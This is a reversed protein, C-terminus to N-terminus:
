AFGRKFRSHFATGLLMMHTEGGQPRGALRWLILLTVSYLGLGMPGLAVLQLLHGVGLSGLHQQTLVLALAMLLGGGLPRWFVSFLAAPSLGLLSAIVAFVVPLSIAAAFLMAFAAGVAGYLPVLLWLASVMLALFLSTVYTLLRPIGLALYVAGSNSSSARLVGFIGLVRILPVAEKWKEGFLVYVLPEALASIALGAPVVFLLIVALVDLFVKRLEDVSAAVKSYGPFVARSIPFVLETTPLNSVEYAIRYTGLAGSGVSRGLVVDTTRHVLFILINNVLLWASFRFLDRRGSLTFRPRYPHLRYSLVVGTIASAIQGAVLAWYNHLSFALSITVCFGVLKKLIGLQFEKHLELEKQFAVIGINTLGQIAAALALCQMVNEVRPEKYFSAATGALALLLCANALGFLVNLTWATDYHKREASRNQILALDFSFTSLIDLAAVVFMAMAVLGFDAPVLLRALILTSILGISRDALRLLVM